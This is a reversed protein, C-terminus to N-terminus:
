FCRGCSRLLSMVVHDGVKTLTVNPGVEEVVGASEHGV